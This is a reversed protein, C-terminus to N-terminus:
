SGNLTKGELRLDTQMVAAAHQLVRQERCSINGPSFTVGLSRNGFFPLKHKFSIMIFSCSFNFNDGKIDVCALNLNKVCKRGSFPSTFSSSLYCHQTQKHERMGLELDSLRNKRFENHANRQLM